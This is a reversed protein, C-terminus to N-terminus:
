RGIQFGVSLFLLQDASPETKGERKNLEVRLLYGRTVGHRFDKSESAPFSQSLSEKEQVKPLRLAGLTM